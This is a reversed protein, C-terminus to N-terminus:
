DITNKITLIIKSSIPQLFLFFCGFTKFNNFLISIHLRRIINKRINALFSKKRNIYFYLLNKSFNSFM